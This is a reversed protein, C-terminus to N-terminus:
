RTGVNAAEVIRGTGLCICRARRAVETWIARVLVGRDNGLWAWGTLETWQTGAERFGAGAPVLARRSRRGLSRAHRGEVAGVLAGGVLGDARDAEHAGVRGHARRDRALQARKDGALALHPAVGAVGAAVARGRRRHEDAGRAVVAWLARRRRRRARDAEVAVDARLGRVRARGPEGARLAAGHRVSGRAPECPGALGESDAHDRLPGAGEIWQGSVHELSVSYRRRFIRETWGDCLTGEYELQRCGGARAGSAKQLDREEMGTLRM